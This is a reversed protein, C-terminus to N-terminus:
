RVCQVPPDKHRKQFAQGWLADKFSNLEKMMKFGLKTCPTFWNWIAHDPSVLVNMLEVALLDSESSKCQRQGFPNLNNWKKEFSKKSSQINKEFRGLFSMWASWHISFCTQSFFPCEKFFATSISVKKIKLKKRFSSCKKLPDAPVVRHIYDPTKISTWPTWFCSFIKVCM